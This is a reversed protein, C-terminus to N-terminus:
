ANLQFNQHNKAAEILHWAFIPMESDDVLLGVKLNSNLKKESM